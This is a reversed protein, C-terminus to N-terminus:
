LATLLPLPRAEEGPVRDSSDDEQVEPVRGAHLNVVERQGPYLTRGRLLNNRTQRDLSLGIYHETMQISKHGLMAQVTRMAGDYGQEVLVDFLARAGSRRLTHGGENLADLGLVALARKTAVFPTSFAKNPQLVSVHQRANGCFKPATMAPCLYCDGDVAVATSYYSLWRRLETDLEACIPLVDRQKTKHRLITLEGDNLNVDRVQLTTVEGQRLLAYLGLAVVMRDRPTKAADLLTPFQSAPLRLREAELVPLADLGAMPDSNSSLFGRARCWRFFSLLTARETNLSSNQIKQGRAMFHKDMHIVTVNGVQINGVSAIMHQLALRDNRVTSPAKRSTRYELYTTMLSSLDRLQSTTM